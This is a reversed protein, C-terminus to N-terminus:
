EKLLNYCMCLSVIIYCEDNVLFFLIGSLRLAVCFFNNLEQGLKLFVKLRMWIEGLMKWDLNYIKSFHFHNSFNHTFHCIFIEKLTLPDFMNTEIHKWKDM